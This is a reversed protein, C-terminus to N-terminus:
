GATEMLPRGSVTGSVADAALALDVRLRVAPGASSGVLAELSSAQLADIRGQLAGPTSRPGLTVASRSM